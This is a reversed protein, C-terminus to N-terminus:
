RELTSVMVQKTTDNKHLTALSHVDWKSFTCSFLSHGPLVFYGHVVELHQHRRTGGCPHRTRRPGVTISRPVPQFKNKPTEKEINYPSTKYGALKEVLDTRERLKFAVGM